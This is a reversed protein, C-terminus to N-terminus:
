ESINLKVRNNKALIKIHTILKADLNDEIDWHKNRALNHFDKLCNMLEKAPLGLKLIEIVTHKQPVWNEISQTTINSKSVDNIDEILASIDAKSVNPIVDTVSSLELKLNKM